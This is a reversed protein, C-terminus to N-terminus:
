GAGIQRRLEKPDNTPTQCVFHECLYATVQGDIAARQLLLPTLDGGEGSPGGALLLGPIFQERSVDLFAQVQSDSNARDGPWVIALERPPSLQSDIVSLLYGFSTAAKEVYPALTQLCSTARREFDLDGTLASLQLLVGAAVSNGSPMANDFFDRPRAVLAEQDRGTDFLGQVTEDWFLDVMESALERASTLYRPEFTASYTAILGDIVMAYDDLYADIKATGAKWTHLLRGNIHLAELLFDASALAARRYTESNLYLAAEAMARLMLGNWAAIVKEDRAPRIRGQRAANLISRSEQVKAAFNDADLGNAAAFREPPSAIHLINQGEFNGGTTVDFFRGLIEADDGFLEKFQAPNWVFFKGEEGDSDADQTSYFGGSPDTMERLVYGLIEETIRRYFRDGSLRFADLYARSLLANDYLMKEFHPVLWVSDTSYRHFGGGAQDYIGGNAMARLTRDLIEQAEVNQSRHVYRALFSLTMPQPFKPAQGFGGFDADHANQIADFAQDLIKQDLPAGGPGLQTSSSIHDVIQQGSKEIDDRRNKYADLVSALVQPFGPMGQRDEPPYYTGGYFPVGEPTLFVTMPWGGRGSVAQVAAMYITDIDPREERDVKISVFGENMQAAIVPNEFSEREMVHCWHCASYGVSLLIPRDNQRAATFAAEGWPHWNVPNDKHQLLYPSSELALLNPM